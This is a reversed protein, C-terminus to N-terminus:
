KNRGAKNFSASYEWKYESTSPLGDPEPTFLIPINQCRRQSVELGRLVPAPSVVAEQRADTFTGCVPFDPDEVAAEFTYRGVKTFVYDQPTKGEPLTEKAANPLIM